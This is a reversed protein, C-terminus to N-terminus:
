IGLRALVASTVQACRAGAFPFSGALASALSDELEARILKRARHLRTKVTATPIGLLGATEDISMEEIDRMVFVARFAEPLRDVAQEVLRRIEARAADKEPDSGALSPHLTIVSAGLPSPTEALNDLSAAPFRRRRRDLAENIAIRTLWTSLSSQGRFGKLSSFAKVYAEQVVDEAESDDGLIGRAVRYLRQNNRQIVLGFADRAGREMEAVLDKDAIVTYDIPKREALSM